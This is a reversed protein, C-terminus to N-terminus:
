DLLLYLRKGSRSHFARKPDLRSRTVCLCAHRLLSVLFHFLKCYVLPQRWFPAQSELDGTNDSGICFWGWTLNYLSNCHYSNWSILDSIIVVLPSPFSKTKPQWPPSLLAQMLVDQTALSQTLYMYTNTCQWRTRSHIKFTWFTRKTSSHELSKPPVLIWLMRFLEIRIKARTVPNLRSQISDQDQNMRTRFNDTLAM